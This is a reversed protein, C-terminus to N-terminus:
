RNYFNLIRRRLMLEYQAQTRELLARLYTSRAQEYDASTAKGYEYKQQVGELSREAADVAVVSAELKQVSADARLQAQQIAKYLDSTQQEYQLEANLRQTRARRVNNRTSFRDFLPVSLTLGVYKSFNDRMQRHFTPNPQGNVYFYNANLGASLSITPLWGTQSLSINRDAAEMALRSAVISHNTDMARAYIQEPTEAPAPEEGLPAIGFGEASPLQLMQALDLLAISWDNHANTLSLQDRALQSEAEYVDLEPLRGGEVLTRRRQLEFESMRVQERAVDELEACYLVQLYQSMVNLEVNDRAAALEEVVARLNAKAYSLRRVGALGQFVPMNLGVGFTTNQTNRDAYTNDATLGRGFSFQQSAQGSLTPLFQDKAETVQYEANTVAVRQQRVNINHTIAYSICSDLTWVPTDTQAMAAAATLAVAATFIVRRMM